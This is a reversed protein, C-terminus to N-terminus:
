FDGYAAQLAALAATGATETRLIRPGLMAAHFGAAQLAAVDAPGFGGEPGIALLMPQVPDIRAARLQTTGDPHLMWRQAPALNANARLWAPLSAVADIDPVSNRGCQECAAIVIGRWHEARKASRAATLKVESRETTVPAIRAVGLEVAKQVIWDMKDGRALAQLLTVRLPSERHPAASAEVAVCAHRADAAVLRAGYERGDGNFLTVRDGPRLRLVRLAHAAASAPLNVDRGPSLPVDTFLRIPRM